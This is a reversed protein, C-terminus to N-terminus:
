GRDGQGRPRVLRHVVMVDREAVIGLVFENPALSRAGTLLVRGTEGPASDADHGVPIEAYGGDPPRGTALMRALAGFVILTDRAVQGPLRLVEAVTRWGPRVRLRVGAQRNIIEAAFAAFAAAGAGALLEDSRLSDDIMVWLAMMLAWWALWTVARGRAAARRGAPPERHARLARRAPEGAFPSTLDNDEAM